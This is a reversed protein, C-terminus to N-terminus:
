PLTNPGHNFFSALSNGLLIPFVITIVFFFKRMADQGDDHHKKSKPLLSDKEELDEKLATMEHHIM